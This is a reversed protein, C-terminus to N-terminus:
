NRGCRAPLEQTLYLDIQEGVRMLAEASYPPNQRWVYATLENTVTADKIVSGINLNSSQILFRAEDYTLCVCDPMEVNILVQESIIFDIVAGMEVKYGGYRLKHTITDGRVLVHIISNPEVKPDPVRAYIRPKLGLLRLKKSYLDYDDGDLTPMRIIDPNNKTITVYITRGAKVRSNAKPTQAVVEGPAKGVEYVSDNALLRLSRTKARVAADRINMGVFDPAQQSDGHHTYCKLLWLTLFFLGVFLGIVGLCNRVVLPATVFSYIEFAWRRLRQSIKM